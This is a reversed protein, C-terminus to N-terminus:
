NGNWSRYDTGKAKPIPVVLRNKYQVIRMENFNAVIVIGDLPRMYFNPTGEANYCVLRTTRGATEPEGFWGMSYSQCVINSINLDRKNASEVFPAYRLPLEEAASVEDNTQMPYGHGTYVRDSVISNASMDVVIEHIRRDILAVVFPQRPPATAATRNSLWSYVAPKDPEHLGVYQFSLKTGNTTPLISNAGLSCALELESLTLPDLPHEQPSSPASLLASALFLVYFSLRMSTLAM